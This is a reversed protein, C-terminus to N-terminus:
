PRHPRPPTVPPKPMPLVKVVEEAKEGIRERLMERVQKVVEEALKLGKLGRGELERLAKEVVEKLQEGPVGYKAAAKIKEELVERLKAKELERVRERVKEAQARVEEVVESINKIEGARVKAKILERIASPLEEAILGAPPQFREYVAEVFYKVLLQKLLLDYARVYARYGSVAYRFALTINGEELAATANSLREDGWAIIKEALTTNIGYSEKAKSVASVLIEKLEGAVKIAAEVAERTITENVMYNRVVKHLVVNAIPAAHRYHIAAVIAFVAARRPATSNLELAKNLFGDAKSLQVQAATVNYGIEWQFLDYTLNRMAYALEIARSPDLVQVRLRGWGGRFVVDVEPMYKEPEPTQAEAFAALPAALGLVVLAVLAVAALRV